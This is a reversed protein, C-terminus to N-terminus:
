GLRQTPRADLRGIVRHTELRRNPAPVFTLTRAFVADYRDLGNCVLQRPSTIVHQVLARIEIQM